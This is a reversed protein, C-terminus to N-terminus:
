FFYHLVEGNEGNENKTIAPRLFRCLNTQHTASTPKTFHENEVAIDARTDAQQFMKSKVPPCVPSM